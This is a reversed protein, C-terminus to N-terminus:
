CQPANRAPNLSVVSFDVWDRNSYYNNMDRGESVGVLM